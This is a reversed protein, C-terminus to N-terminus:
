PGAHSQRLIGSGGIDAASAPKATYRRSKVPIRDDSGESFKCTPFTVESVPLDGRIDHVQSDILFKSVSRVSWVLM